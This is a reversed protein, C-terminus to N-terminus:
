QRRRSAGWERVAEIKGVPVLAPAKALVVRWMALRQIGDGAEELLADLRELTPLDAPPDFPDALEEIQRRISALREFEELRHYKRGYRAIMEDISGGYSPTCTSIRSFLLDPPRKLTLTIGGYPLSRLGCSDLVLLPKADWTMFLAPASGKLVRDVKVVAMSEIGPILSGIFSPVMSGPLGSLTTHRSIVAGEIITDTGPSLPSTRSCSCALVPSALVWMVLALAIRMDGDGREVLTTTAALRRLFSGHDGLGLGDHREGAPEINWEGL